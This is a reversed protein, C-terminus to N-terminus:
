LMHIFPYTEGCNGFKTTSLGSEIGPSIDFGFKHEKQDKSGIWTQGEIGNWNTLLDFRSKQLRTKWDGLENKEAKKDIPGWHQGGMSAGLSFDFESDAARLIWTCQLITPPLGHGPQPKFAM